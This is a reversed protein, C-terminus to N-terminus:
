KPLPYDFRYNLLVYPEGVHWLNEGADGVEFLGGGIKQPLYLHSSWGATLGVTDTIPLRASLGLDVGPRLLHFSSPLGDSDVFAYTMLLGAGVGVHLDGFRTGAGIHLLEWTAGYVGTDGLKPSLFLSRPIAALYPPAYRVTELRRLQARREPPVYEPHDEAWESDIVAAIELHWGTHVPQDTEFPDGTRRLPSQDLYFLSPGTSIELPVTDATAPAATALLVVAISLAAVSHNLLQATSRNLM